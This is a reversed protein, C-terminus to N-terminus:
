TLHAVFFTWIELAAERAAETSSVHLASTASAYAQSEEFVQV